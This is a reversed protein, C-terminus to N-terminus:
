RPEPYNPQIVAFAAGQPDVYVALRGVPIDLGELLVQGGHQRVTESAADADGVGFYVMWHPPTGAPIEDGMAGAGALGEPWRQGEVQWMSFPSDPPADPSKELQWGFVQGYFDAAGKMDNTALQNWTWSGVENVLQAGHHSGQQTFAFVAGQPDMAVAMRGADAPLDMPDFFVNGGAQKIKEATEDADAVKVYGTWAPHAGEPLPGYGGVQKGDHLFFGYGGSEEVPEAPQAEWGLLEAYFRAAAETDSTGLDVWTFEGPVYETRESM